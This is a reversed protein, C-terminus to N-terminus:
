MIVRTEKFINLFGVKLILYQIIKGTIYYRDNLREFHGSIITEFAEVM